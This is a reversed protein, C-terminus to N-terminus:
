LCMMLAIMTMIMLFNCGDDGDTDCFLMLVFFLLGMILRRMKARAHMTLAFLPTKTTLFRWVVRTTLPIQTM